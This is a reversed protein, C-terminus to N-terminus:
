LLVKFIDKISTHLAQLKQVNHTEFGKRVIVQYVALVMLCYTYILWVFTNYINEQVTNPSITHGLLLVQTHLMM